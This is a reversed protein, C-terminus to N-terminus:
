FYYYYNAFAIPLAFVLRETALTISINTLRALEEATLSTNDKIQFLHASSEFSADDLFLISDQGVVEVSPRTFLERLEPFTTSKTTM